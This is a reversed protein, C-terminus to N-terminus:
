EITVKLLISRIMLRILVRDTSSSWFNENAEIRQCPTKHIYITKELRFHSSLLSPNYNIRDKVNHAYYDDVASSNRHRQERICSGTFPESKASFSGRGEVGRSSLEYILNCRWHETEELKRQTEALGEITIEAFYTTFKKRNREEFTELTVFIIESNIVIIEQNQSILANSYWILYYYVNFWRSFNRHSFQNQARDFYKSFLSLHIDSLNLAVFSPSGHM